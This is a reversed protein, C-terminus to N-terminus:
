GKGCTDSGGKCSSDSYTPDTCGAIYTMQTSPSYCAGDQLCFDGALCCASVGSGGGCPIYQDLAAKGAAYYCQDQAEVAALGVLLLTALSWMTVPSLEDICVSLDQDGLLILAWPGPLQPPSYAFFRPQIILRFTPTTYVLSRAQAL